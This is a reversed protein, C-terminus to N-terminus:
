LLLFCDTVRLAVVSLIRQEVLGVQHVEEVTHVRKLEECLKVLYAVQRKELLNNSQLETNIRCCGLEHFVV